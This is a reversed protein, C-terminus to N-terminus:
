RKNRMFNLPNQDEDEEEEEKEPKSLIWDNIWKVMPIALCALLLRRYPGKEMQKIKAKWGGKFGVAEPDTQVMDWDSKIENALQTYQENTLLNFRGLIYFIFQWLTM